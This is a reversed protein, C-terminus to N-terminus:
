RQRTFRDSARERYGNLEACLANPDMNFNQAVVTM